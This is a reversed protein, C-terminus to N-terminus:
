VFTSYSRIDNFVNTMTLRKITKIINVYKKEKMEPLCGFLIIFNRNKFLQLCILYLRHTVPLQLCISFLRFNGLLLCISANIPRQNQIQKRNKCHTEQEQQLHTQGISMNKLTKCSFVNIESQNLRFICKSTPSVREDEDSIIM